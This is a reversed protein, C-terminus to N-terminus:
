LIDTIYHLWILPCRFQWLRSIKHPLKFLNISKLKWIKTNWTFPTFMTALFSIQIHPAAPCNTWIKIYEQGMNIAATSMVSPSYFTVIEQLSRYM